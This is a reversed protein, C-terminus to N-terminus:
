SELKGLFRCIELGFAQKQWDRMEEIEHLDELGKPNDQAIAQILTNNCIFGPDMGWDRACGQRWEKLAKVRNSVAPDFARRKTKPYVPLKDESLNLSKRINELIPGGLIKVQRDGIGKITKLEKLNRPKEEVLATIAPNGLVKFPPRDRKEALRERLQLLAELVALSRNDYKGAGKFKLFLPGNHNNVSRVRSQAECEERVWSMRGVEQLEGELIRALSILYLSDMVAYNLMAEPLPRRSWDEKQYKKKLVVGLKVKLLDALGTESLGLFRAAIQTDFLFNVDLSFDRHLSRIDYDAGHFIKLIRSDAFLSELDSLDKVVLTDVLFNETSSSIQLLCVKERYHYMSDAELDVGIAPEKELHAVAQKLEQQSEIFAYEPQGQEM